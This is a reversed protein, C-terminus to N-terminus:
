SNPQPTSTSSTSTTSTSNTTSRRTPHARKTTSPKYWPWKKRLAEIATTTLLKALRTIESLPGNYALSAQYIKQIDTEFHSLNFYYNNYTHEQVTSLCMPEKVISYYEPHVTADVRQSFISFRQDSILDKALIQLQAAITTPQSFLRLLDKAEQVTRSHIDKAVLWIDSDQANYVMCNEFVQLIDALVCEVMTYAGTSLGARISGLDNPRRVIELYKMPRLNETDVPALFVGHEDYAIVQNVYKLLLARGPGSATEADIATFQVDKQRACGAADREFGALFYKANNYASSDYGASLFLSRCAEVVMQVVGPTSILVDRLSPIAPSAISFPIDELTPMVRGLAQVRKAAQAITTAAKGTKARRILAQDAEALSLDLYHEKIFNDITYLKDIDVVVPSLLSKFPLRVILPRTLRVVLRLTPPGEEGSMDHAASTAEVEEAIETPGDILALIEKFLKTATSDHTNSEAMEAILPSIQQATKLVPLGACRLSDRLIQLVHLRIVRTEGPLAKLVAELVSSPGLLILAEYAALRVKHFNGPKAYTLLRQFDLEVHGAVALRALAKISACTVANQHSPFLLDRRRLKEIEAVFPSVDAATDSALAISLATIIDALYFGDEYPNGTNDNYRMLNLLFASVISKARVTRGSLSKSADLQCLAMAAAVNKQLVYSRLHSFENGKVITTNQICYNSIFYQVVRQFGFYGTEENLAQVLVIGAGISVRYFTQASDMVRELVGCVSESPNKQLSALAEMQGYVDKESVLQEAAMFDAQEVVAIKMWELGPDARVWLVAPTEDPKRKRPTRPPGLDHVAPATGLPLAHDTVAEAEYVRLTIKGSLNRLAEPHVSHMRLRLAVSFGRPSQDVQLSITPIGAHFVFADFLHRLDKGTTARIIRILDATTIPELHTLTSNTNPQTSNTNPQTSTELHNSSEPHNAPPSNSDSLDLSENTPQPEETEPLGLCKGTSLNSNPVLQNDESQNTTIIERMIKQMFARTLNYELTRILTGSKCIFFSSSFTSTSRELSSLPAEEIDAQSLYTINRYHEHRLENSGLFLEALTAALYERFGVYLWVDGPAAAARFYQAAVARTLGRVSSMCQDLASPAMIQSLNFIGLGPGFVDEIECSSFFLNLQPVKVDLAVAAANLAAKVIELAEKRGSGLRDELHRPLFLSTRGLSGVGLVGGAFLVSEPLARPIFYHYTKTTGGDSIGVLSGSSLLTLGPTSPLIYLMDTDPLAGPVWPFLPFPRNTGIFEASPFPVFLLSLTSPDATFLVRLRSAYAPITTTIIQWKTTYAETKLLNLNHISIPNPIPLPSPKLHFISTGSFTTAIPNISLINKQRIIGM